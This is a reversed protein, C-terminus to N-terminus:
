SICIFCSVWGLLFLDIAIMYIYCASTLTRLCIRRAVGHPAMCIMGLDRLDERALALTSCHVCQAGVVVPRAAMSVGESRGNKIKRSEM